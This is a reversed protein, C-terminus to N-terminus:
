IVLGIDAFSSERYNILDVMDVVDSDVFDLVVGLESAFILGRHLAVAEAIAPSIAASFVKGKLGGDQLERLNMVIDRCEELDAWCNEYHSRRYSSWQVEPGLPLSGAKAVSQFVFMTPNELLTSSPHIVYPPVGGNEKHMPKSGSPAVCVGHMEVDEEVHVSFIVHLQLPFHVGSTGGEEASNDFGGAGGSM